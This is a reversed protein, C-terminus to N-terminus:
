VKSPGMVQMYINTKGALRVIPTIIALKIIQFASHLSRGLKPCVQM